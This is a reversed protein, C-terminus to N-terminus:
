PIKGLLIHSTNCQYFQYSIESRDVSSANQQPYNLQLIQPIGTSCFQEKCLTMSLDGNTATNNTILRKMTKVGVEARCNAHPYAVSSLRHNTGWSKLFKRTEAATFEPGGDITIQGPIGYTSFSNRLSQIPGKAEDHSREVIPWNSYRDIIVLFNIGRYSFFDACILQCPYDQMHPIVPPESAQSPAMYNCDSCLERTKSICDTIEPWFVSSRARSTMSSIGQHAAHLASLVKSRLSPPILVRNNYMIVGDVTYLNDRHKHYQQLASPYLSLVDPLGAEILEVLQYMESTTAELECM